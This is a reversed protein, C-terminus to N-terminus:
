RYRRNGAGGLQLATKLDSIRYARKVDDFTRAGDVITHFDALL